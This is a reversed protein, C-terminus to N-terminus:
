TRSRGTSTRPMTPRATGLHPHRATLTDGPVDPLTSEVTSPGFTHYQGEDVTITIIYADQAENLTPVVSVIRFDPYGRNVYFRASGSRTARSAIPIM